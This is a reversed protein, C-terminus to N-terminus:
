TSSRYTPAPVELTARRAPGHQMTHSPDIEFSAGPSEQAGSSAATFSSEIGLGSPAFSTFSSSRAARLSPTVNGEADRPSNYVERIQPLAANRQEEGPVEPFDIAPGRRFPSIDFKDHAATGLYDGIKNLSKAVRRRNGADNSRERQLRTESHRIPHTSPNELQEIQSTAPRSETLPGGTKWVEGDTALLLYFAGLVALITGAIPAWQGISAIPETQYRLQPSFFNIEGVILIALVAGAFVPVEVVGLLKQVISNVGKMRGVTAGNTGTILENRYAEEDSYGHQNKWHNELVKELMFVLSLIAPICCAAALLMGTNASLRDPLPIVYINNASGGRM